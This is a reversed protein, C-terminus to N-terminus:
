SNDSLSLSFGISVQEGEVLNDKANPARTASLMVGSQSSKNQASLTAAGWITTNSAGTLSGITFVARDSLNNIAGSTANSPLTLDQRTGEDYNTFETATATFNDADWTSNPTVNGAFPAIYWQTIKTTGGLLIDIWTNLGETPVLNPALEDPSGNRSFSYLSTLTVGNNFRIIGDGAEFKFDRAKQKLLKSLSM